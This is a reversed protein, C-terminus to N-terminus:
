AVRHGRELADQVRRALSAPRLPKAMLGANPPLTAELGVEDFGSVFLIGVDPWRQRLRTALHLGGLRPMILDTLVLDIRTDCAAAVALAEEGDAAVLVRHGLERLTRETMGRVPLDDEVVLVTRRESAVIVDDDTVDDLSEPMANARPLSVRMETGRGIASDVTIAGNAQTVIGYCTALGLGTGEGPPKTTFFPEFMRQRVDEAIGTGTDRVALFVSGTGADNGTRITLRGGAPMADRANIALNVVVQEIQHPDAYVAGLGADLGTVLEIHEGLLRRLMPELERVIGNLDVHRPEVDHRRAFTLLQRTLSAAREGAIGIQRIDDRVTGVVVRGAFSAYGLIVTLLNNLDHALGGALRGISDLKQTQALTQELRVREAYEDALQATREVVRRELVDHAERLERTRADVTAQLRQALRQLRAVRARHIVWLVGGVLAVLLARFWSAEWYYPALMVPTALAVGSDPPAGEEFAQVRLRYSGGPLNTYEASRRGGAEVWDRDYGELRYRFRLRRPTALSPSTFAFRLRRRGAGNELDLRTGPAVPQDDVVVRELRLPHLRPRFRRDAPDFHVVGAATAFWLRGDAARAAGHQGARLFSLGFLGDARDFTRVGFSSRRGDAVALLESRSLRQLGLDSSIWLDDGAVVTAYAQRHLGPHHPEFPTFRGDRFLTLGVTYGGIWLSDGDVTISIVDRGPLGDQEGYVRFAGDAYRVLGTGGFWLGGQRDQAIAWVQRGDQGPPLALPTIRAGEVRVVGAESHAIWVAGDAAEFLSHTRGAPADPDLVTETGHRTVRVVGRDVAVWLAGDRSRLLDTVVGKRFPVRTMSAYDRGIRFVGLNGAALVTGDAEPHVAWLVSRDGPQVTRLLREQLRGIGDRLGIWVSGDVDPLLQAMADGSLDAVGDLRDVRGRHMVYLGSGITGIWVRGDHDRALSVVFRGALPASRRPRDLDSIDVLGDVEGAWVRGDGDDTLSYPRLAAMAAPAPAHRGHRWITLGWSGGGIYVAGDPRELFAHVRGGPGDLTTVTVGDVIAAGAATGVWLRGARDRMLASVRPDPLGEAVGIRTVVGHRYRAIGDGETGIWLGGDGDDVLRSVVRGPLWSPGLEEAPTFRVGDFRYLGRATGVWLFGDDTRLLANGPVDPLGDDATWADFRFRELLSAQSRAPQVELVLLVVCSTALCRWVHQVRTARGAM